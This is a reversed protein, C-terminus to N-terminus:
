VFRTTRGTDDARPTCWSLMLTPSTVTVCNATSVPLLERRM